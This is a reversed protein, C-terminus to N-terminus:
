IDVVLGPVFQPNPEVVAYGRPNALVRTHGILYDVNNHVHGHIWTAAGSQAVVADLNSAFAASLLDRAYQGAISRASPAHHTVVVIKEGRRRELEGALWAVSEAHMRKTDSPRLRRYSPDVRIVQYDMMGRQAEFQAIEANGFLAFDTWLTCGLFTVGDMTIADNELFHVNTGAAFDRLKQLHRPLAQKYFEHNGAVYIVQKNLLRTQAWRIGAGGVATDGALVVVDADTDPPDFDGFELHLDSIIHLKM